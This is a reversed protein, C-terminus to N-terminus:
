VEVTLVATMFCVACLSCQEQGEANAFTGPACLTCVTPGVSGAGSYSSYKGAPCRVCEGRGTVNAFFGSACPKCSAQGVCLPASLPTRGPCCYDVCRCHLHSHGASVPYM